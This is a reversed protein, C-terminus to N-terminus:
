ALNSAYTEAFGGPLGELVGGMWLWLTFAASGCVNLTPNGTGILADLWRRSEWCGLGSGIDVGTIEGVTVGVLTTGGGLTIGGGLAAFGTVGLRDVRSTAWCLSFSVSTSAGLWLM